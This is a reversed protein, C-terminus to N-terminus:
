LNRNCLKCDINMKNYIQIRRMRARFLKDNREAIIEDKKGILMDYPTLYFIASHLRKNNYYWIYQDIQKRADSISLFSKTRICEIKISKFFRELKGNSQPYGASILVQKLGIHKLYEKFDKAIFQSGRDTILKPKENIYREHAKQVVLKVDEEQMSARLDYHVIYRSYGDIIAILFLFTGLINIYSIDIHWEEHPAKPQIYGRGKLTKASYNFRNLLGAAKLVRYVSSPSAYAIDEDIMRYTLRRYGEEINVKAYKIIALKEEELLWSSGPVKINHKNSTGYRRRWDYFKSRAIGGYILLQKIKIGTREKLNM